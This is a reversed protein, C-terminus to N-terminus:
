WKLYLRKALPSLPFAIDLHLEIANNFLGIFSCATQRLPRGQVEGRRNDVQRQTQSPSFLLRM